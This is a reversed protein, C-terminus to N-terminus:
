KWKKIKYKQGKKPYSLVSSVYFANTPSRTQCLTRSVPISSDFICLILHLFTKYFVNSVFIFGYCYLIKIYFKLWNLDM